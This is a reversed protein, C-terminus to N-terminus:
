ELFYYDAYNMISFVTTSAAFNLCVTHTFYTTQLFMCHCNEDLELLENSRCCFDKKSKNHTTTLAEFM